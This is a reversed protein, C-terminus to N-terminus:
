KAAGQGMPAECYFCNNPGSEMSTDVQHRGDPSSLCETARAQPLSVNLVLPVSSVVFSPDYDRGREGFPQDKSFTLRQNSQGGEMHLTHLYAVPLACTPAWADISTWMDSAADELDAHMGGEIHDLADSVRQWAVRLPTVPLAPAQPPVSRVIRVELDTVIGPMHQVFRLDEAAIVIGAYSSKDHGLRGALEGPPWSISVQGFKDTIWLRGRGPRGARAHFEDSLYQPWFAPGDGAVDGSVVVPTSAIARVLDCDEHSTWWILPANM